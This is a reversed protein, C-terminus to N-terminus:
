SEIDIGGAPRYHLGSVRWFDEDDPNLVRDEGGEAEGELRDFELELQNNSQIELRPIGRAWSRVKLNRKTSGPHRNTDLTSTLMM